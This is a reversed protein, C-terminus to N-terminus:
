IKRTLNVKKVTNSLLKSTSSDLTKMSEAFRTEDLITQRRRKRVIMSYDNSVARRRRHQYDVQQKKEERDDSVVLNAHDITLRATYHLGVVNSNKKKKNMSRRQEEQEDVPTYSSM